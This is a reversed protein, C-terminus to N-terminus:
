RCDAIKLFRTFDVASLSPDTSGAAAQQVFIRATDSQHQFLHSDIRFLTSDIQPYLNAPWAKNIVSLVSVRLEVYDALRYFDADRVADEQPHTFPDDILATTSPTTPLSLADRESSSVAVYDGMESLRGPAVSTPPSSAAHEVM